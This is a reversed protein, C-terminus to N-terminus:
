CECRETQLRLEATLGSREARVIHFPNTIVATTICGEGPERRLAEVQLRGGEEVIRRIEMEYGGSPQQQDVVAVVMFIQFDVQPLAPAPTFPSTHEQWFARFDEETELKFVEATEARVGSHEGGAMTDFRLEGDGPLAEEEECAAGALLFLAALTIATVARM